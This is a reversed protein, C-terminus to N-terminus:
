LRSPLGSTIRWHQINIRGDTCNKWQRLRIWPYRTFSRHPRGLAREFIRSSQMWVIHILKNSPGGFRRTFDRISEDELKFITQLSSINRKQQVSCLYQSVLAARLESFSNISRRPLEHFWSSRSCKAYYVTTERM